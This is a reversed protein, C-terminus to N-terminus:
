SWNQQRLTVENEYHKNVLPRNTKSEITNVIKERVTSIYRCSYSGGDITRSKELLLTNDNDITYRENKGLAINNRYWM